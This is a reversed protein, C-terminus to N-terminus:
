VRALRYAFMGGSEEIAEVFADAEVRSRFIEVTNAGRVYVGYYRFRQDHSTSPMPPPPPPASQEHTRPTPTHPTQSPPPPRFPTLTSTSPGPTCPRAPTFPKKPSGRLDNAKSRQSPRKTPSPSQRSGQIPPDPHQSPTSRPPNSQSPVPNQHGCVHPGLEHRACNDQWVTLCEDLTHCTQELNGSFRILQANAASWQTFIGLRRGRLVVYLPIGGARAMADDGPSFRHPSLCGVDELALENMLRIQENWVDDDALEEFDDDQTGSPM